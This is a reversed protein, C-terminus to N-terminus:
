EPLREAHETVVRGLRETRERLADDRFRGDEDLESSAGRIGV